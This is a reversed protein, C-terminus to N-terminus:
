NCLFCWEPGVQCCGPSCCVYDLHCCADGCCEYDPGCCHEATGPGPCCTSGKSCCKTPDDNIRCCVGGPACCSGNCCTYGETESCCGDGCCQWGEPCCHEATGPGPCCTSGVACCNTTGNNCCVGGFACCEGNCCTFGSGCTSVCTGDQCTECASCTTVCTGNQCTECASCTSVCTGNQCTECDVCTSVCTNTIPDCTQCQSADCCVTCGTSSSLVMAGATVPDCNGTIPNCETCDPCFKRQCNNDVCRLCPDGEICKLCDIARPQPPEQTVATDFQKKTEAQAKSVRSKLDLLAAKQNKGCGTFPKRTWLTNVDDFASQINFRHQGEHEALQDLVESVERNCADICCPIGAPTFNIMRSDPPNVFTWRWTFTADFCTQKTVRNRYPDSLSGADLTAENPANVSYSTCGGHDYKRHGDPCIVGCDHLYNNLQDCPITVNNDPQCTMQAAVRKVGQLEKNDFEFLSSIVFSAIGGVFIKLFSRRSINSALERTLNDFQDHNM